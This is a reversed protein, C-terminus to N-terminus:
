TTADARRTMLGDITEDAIAVIRGRKQLYPVLPRFPELGEAEGVVIVYWHNQSQLRFSALQHTALHGAMYFM